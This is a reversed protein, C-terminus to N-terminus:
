LLSFRGEQLLNSVNKYNSHCEYGDQSKAISKLMSALKRPEVHIDVLCELPQWVAIELLVCGLSYIDFSRSYAMTPEQRKDPHQYYDTITKKRIIESYVVTVQKVVEVIKDPRAHGFGVFQPEEYALDSRIASGDGHSRNPDQPYFIISESRIGRFGSTLLLTENLSMHSCVQAGM